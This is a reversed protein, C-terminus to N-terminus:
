FLLSLNSKIKKKTKGVGAVCAPCCNCHSVNPTWFQGAPCDSPVLSSSCQFTGDCPPCIEQSNIEVITLLIVTFILYFMRQQINIVFQIRKSQRNFRIM